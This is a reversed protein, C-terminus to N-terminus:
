QKVGVDYVCDVPTDDTCDTDEDGRVGAGSWTTSDIDTDGNLALNNTELEAWVQFKLPNATPDWAYGYCNLGNADAGDYIDTCGSVLPDHPISVLYRPKLFSMNPATSPAATGPYSSNDDFYLEMSSRVQNIDAIRKVDRAKARAVGLQLLLLTALVSIIAIVVLLEILTFGKQECVSKKLHAPKM